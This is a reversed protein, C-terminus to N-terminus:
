KKDLKLKPKCCNFKAIFKNEPVIGVSIPKNFFLLSIAKIKNEFLSAPVTGVSIEKIFFIHLNSREPFLSEPIIKFNRKIKINKM